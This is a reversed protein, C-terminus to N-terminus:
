SAGLGSVGLVEQLAGFDAGVTLELAVGAELVAQRQQGVALLFVGCIAAQAL